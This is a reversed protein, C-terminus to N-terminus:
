RGPDKMERWWAALPHSKPPFYRARIEILRIAESLVEAGVKGHDAWHKLLDPTSWIRVEPFKRRTHNAAQKDDIALELHRSAAIAISMAEGDDVVMSQEVYLMEEDEGSLELVQLLGSALLPYLDVEIMEGTHADRLKKVEDRVAPCIAFQWGTAEALVTLCGAALLNLLVSCDNLLIKM